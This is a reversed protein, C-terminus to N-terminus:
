TVELCQRLERWDKDFSELGKDTLVHKYMGHFLKVPLTCIDAGVKFASAVQGVDRISAALVRTKVEHTAFVDAIDEILKIGDFSQDYVRGVFPSVYTAGAKSALIAQATSFILTVNVNVDENALDRCAKLGEPTCPVKITINPGIELYDDAMDLMEEATEGVVEASISADWPFINSIEKIVEIPDQGAKRMLSPNTTVGDILGTEFANAILDADSCDLFLKM